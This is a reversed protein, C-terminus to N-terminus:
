KHVSFQRTQSQVTTSFTGHDHGFACTAKTFMTWLERHHDLLLTHTRGGRIIHSEDSVSSQTADAMCCIGNLCRARKWYQRLMLIRLFFQASRAIHHLAGRRAFCLFFRTHPHTMVCLRFICFLLVLSNERSIITVFVGLNQKSKGVTEDCRKASRAFVSAIPSNASTPEGGGM